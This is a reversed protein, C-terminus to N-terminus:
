KWPGKDIEKNTELETDVIQEEDSCELNCEDKLETKIEGKITMKMENKLKEEIESKIEEKDSVISQIQIRFPNVNNEIEEKIKELTKKKAEDVVNNYERLSDRKIDELKVQYDSEKDDFSEKIKTIKIRYDNLIYASFVMFLAFIFTLIDKRNNLNKESVSFKDRLVLVQEKYSGKLIKIDRNYEENIKKLEKAYLNKYTEVDQLKNELVILKASDLILNECSINQDAIVYSPIYLFCSVLIIQLVSIVKRYM